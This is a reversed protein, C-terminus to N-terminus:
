VIRDIVTTHNSHKFSYILSGKKNMRIFTSRSDSKRGVAGKKRLKTLSARMHERDFTRHYIQEATTEEDDKEFRCHYVRDRLGTKERYTVVRVTGCEEQQIKGEQFLLRVRFVIDGDPLTIYYKTSSADILEIFPLPCHERRHKLLDPVLLGRYKKVWREAKKDRDEFHLIDDLNTTLWRDVRYHLLLKDKRSHIHVPVRKIPSMTTEEEGKILAPQLTEEEGIYPHAMTFPARERKKKPPSPKKVESKEEEILQDGMEIYKSLARTISYYNEVMAKRLELNKRHQVMSEDRIELAHKNTSLSPLHLKAFENWEKKEKIDVANIEEIFQPLRGGHKFSTIIVKTREEVLHILFNNLNVYNNQFKENDVIKNQSTPNSVVLDLKWDEEDEVVHCSLFPYFGTKEYYQNEIVSQKYFYSKLLINQVIEQYITLWYQRKHPPIQSMIKFHQQLQQDLFVLYEQISSNKRFYDDYKKECSLELREKFTCLDEYCRGKMYEFILTTCNKKEAEIIFCSLQSLRENNRKAAEITKADAQDSVHMTLSYDDKGPIHKIECTMQHSQLMENTTKLMNQFHEDILLTTLEKQFEKVRNKQIVGDIKSPQEGMKWFLKEIKNTPTKVDETPPFSKAFLDKRHDDFVKDWQALKARIGNFGERLYYSILDDFMNQSIVEVYQNRNRFLEIYQEDIKIKRRLAEKSLKMKFFFIGDNSQKTVQCCFTHQGARECIQDMYERESNLLKWRISEKLKITFSVTSDVSYPREEMKLFLKMIERDNDVLEVWRSTESTDLWFHLSKESGGFTYRHILAGSKKKALNKLFATREQFIEIMEKALKEDGRVPEKSMKLILSHHDSALQCTLTQNSKKEKLFENAFACEAILLKILFSEELTLRFKLRTAKKQYSYTISGYPRRGMEKIVGNIVRQHKASIRNHNIEPYRNWAQSNDISKNLLDKVSM